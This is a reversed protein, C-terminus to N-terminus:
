LQRFHKHHLAAWWPWNLVFGYCCGSFSFFFQVFSFNRCWLRFSFSINFNHEDIFNMTYRFLYCIWQEVYINVSKEVHHVLPFLCVFLFVNRIRCIKTIPNHINVNQTQSVSWNIQFLLISIILRERRSIRYRRHFLLFIVCCFPVRFMKMNWGNEVGDFKM